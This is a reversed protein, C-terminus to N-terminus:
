GFLNTLRAMHYQNALTVIGTPGNRHKAVILDVEGSRISESNNVDDRHLLIVVDSDQELAGSDRLDSLVPKKDHRSEVARNLQALALVPVTDRSILKLERSIESMIVQRSEMRHENPHRLLGLYDVMVCTINHTLMMQHAKARIDVTTLNASADIHLPAKDIRNKAEACRQWEVDTMGGSIIKSLPVSAEASILRQGIEVSSMELSFFLAPKGSRISINRAIDLAAISKGAGPRGAILLFQGARIGGLMDDLESYGTTLVSEQFTGDARAAAQAIAQDVVDGATFSNQQKDYLLATLKNVTHSTLDYPDPNKAAASLGARLHASLHRLRSAKKVKMAYFSASAPTLAKNSLAFIESLPLANQTPSPLSSHLAVPEVPKDSSYHDIIASYLDQYAPVYFDDPNVIHFVESIASSAILLCGLLMEESPVDNNEIGIASEDPVPYLNRASTM